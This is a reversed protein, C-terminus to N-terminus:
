PFLCDLYKSFGVMKDPVKFEETTVARFVFFTKLLLCFEFKQLWRRDGLHFSLALMNASKAGPSHQKPAGKTLCEKPIGLGGMEPWLLCMWISLGAEGRAAQEASPQAVPM